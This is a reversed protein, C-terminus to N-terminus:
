AKNADGGGDEDGDDVGGDGEENSREDKAECSDAEEVGDAVVM